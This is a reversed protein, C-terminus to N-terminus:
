HYSCMSTSHNTGPNSWAWDKPLAMPAIAGPPLVSPTDDVEEGERQRVGLGGDGGREPHLM